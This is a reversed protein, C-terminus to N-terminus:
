RLTSASAQHLHARVEFTLEDRAQATYRKIVHGAAIAPTNIASDDVAILHNGRNDMQFLFTSGCEIETEFNIDLAFFKM